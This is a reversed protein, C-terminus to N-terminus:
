KWFQVMKRWRSPGHENSALDQLSGPNDQDLDERLVDDLSGAIPLTILDIRHLLSVVSSFVTLYYGGEGSLQLPDCLQWLFQNTSELGGVESHVVVYM